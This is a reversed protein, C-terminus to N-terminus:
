AAARARLLARAASFGSGLFYLALAHFALGIWDGAVLFILTDLAFLAIGVAFARSSPRAAVRGLWAFAAILAFGAARVAFGTGVEGSEGFAAAVADLVQTVGLGIIFGWSSGFAAAVANVLSLGAIWYFWSAGGRVRELLRPDESPAEPTSEGTMPSADLIDVADWGRSELAALQKEPPSWHTRPAANFADWEGALAWGSAGEIRRRAQAFKERELKVYRELTFGASPAQGTREAVHNVLRRHKELIELLGLGPFTAAVVHDGRMMYFVPLAHRESVQVRVRGALVSTINFHLGFQDDPMAGAPMAVREFHQIEVIRTAERDALFRAFGRALAQSANSTYDGLRTYGRAELQISLDEIAAWDAKPWQAPDVPVLRFDRPIGNAMSQRVGRFSQWASFLAVGGTLAVPWGLGEISDLGGTFATIALSALLVVIALIVARRILTARM